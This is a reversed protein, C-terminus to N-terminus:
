VMKRLNQLCLIHLRCNPLFKTQRRSKLVAFSQLYELRIMFFASFFHPDNGIIKMNVPSSGNCFFLHVTLNVPYRSFAVCEKLQVIHHSFEEPDYLVPYSTIQSSHPQCIRKFPQLISDYFCYLFVSVLLTFHSLDCLPACISSTSQRLLM